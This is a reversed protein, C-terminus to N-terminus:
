VQQLYFKKNKLIYLKKFYIKRKQPYKQLVILGIFSLISTVFTLSMSIISVFHSATCNFFNEVNTYNNLLVGQRCKQENELMERMCMSGTTFLAISLITSLIKLVFSLLWVTNLKEFTKTKVNQFRSNCISCNDKLTKNIMNEFCKEHIFMGRCKCVNILFPSTHNDYCIYCEM